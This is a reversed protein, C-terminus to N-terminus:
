PRGAVSFRLTVFTNTGYGENALNDYVPSRELTANSCTYLGGSGDEM